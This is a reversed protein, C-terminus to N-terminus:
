PGFGVHKFNGPSLISPQIKLLLSVWHEFFNNELNASNFSPNWKLKDVCAPTYVDEYMEIPLLQDMYEIDSDSMDGDLAAVRAMQNLAIGYSEAKPSSQIGMLAYGPGVLLASFFTIAILCALMRESSHRMLKSRLAFISVVVCLLVCIYLGNNRLLAVVVLCICFLPLWKKDRRICSGKSIAFDTLLLSLMMLASSFIPDKWIAISYSAYYPTLALIVALAFGFLFSLDLRKIIWTCLYSFSSSLLLMQLVVFLACGATADLGVQEAVSVWCFVVFTFAVPHHNSWGSNGLM